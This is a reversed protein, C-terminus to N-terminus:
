WQTILWMKVDENTPCLECRICAVFSKPPMLLSEGSAVPGQLRPQRDCEHRLVSAPAPWAADGELPGQLGKVAEGAIDPKVDAAALICLSRAGTTDATHVCAAHHSSHPLRCSPPLWTLCGLCRM